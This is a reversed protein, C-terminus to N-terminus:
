ILEDLSPPPFVCKIRNKTLVKAKMGRIGGLVVCDSCDDEVLGRVTIGKLYSCSYHSM